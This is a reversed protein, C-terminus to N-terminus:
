KKGKATVSANGIGFSGSLAGAAGNGLSGAVASSGSNTDSKATSSVKGDKAKGKASNDSTAYAGGAGIASGINGSISGAGTVQGTSTTVSGQSKKSGAEAVGVSLALAAIAATAIFFKNM